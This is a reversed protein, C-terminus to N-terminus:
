STLQPTPSPRAQPSQVLRSAAPPSTPMSLLRPAALRPCRALLGNPSRPPRGYNLSSDAHVFTPRISQPSSPITADIWRSAMSQEENHPSQCSRAFLPSPLHHPCLFPPLRVFPSGSVSQEGAEKRECPGGPVSCPAPVFYPLSGPVCAGILPFGGLTPTGNQGTPDYSSTSYQWQQSGSAYRMGGVDYRNTQQAEVFVLLSPIEGGCEAPLPLHEDAM